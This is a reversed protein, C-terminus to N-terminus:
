LFELRAFYERPVPWEALHRRHTQVRRTVQTAEGLPVRLEQEREEVVEDGGCSWQLWPRLFLTLSEGEEEFRHVVGALARQPERLLVRVGRRERLLRLLAASKM